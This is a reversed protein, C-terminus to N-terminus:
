KEFTITWEKGSVDSPMSFGGRPSLSIGCVQVGDPSCNRKFQQSFFRGVFVQLWKDIEEEAFDEKFVLKAVYQTKEASFGLYLMNYLFFDHLVYPGVKDETKQAIEGKDPPLLEPSVPTNLIDCLASKLVENGIRDAEYKVLFRMLTKPIGCNVGYMSMHDGNYTAWGLAIESMDGTGIAIGGIQNAIDMLVQTRERAQANEYAADFKDKPQNIDLFHQNVADKISVERFDVGLEEAIIQANSRTRKTTGFCPMTVAIINKRDICLGDFARVAVLLAMTSDLGGSVGIVAKKVGTHDLRKQLGTVQINIAEEFYSADEKVFPMKDFNRSLPTEDIDFDTEAVYYENNDSLGNKRRLFALAQLDIESMIMDNEFKKGLALMKGNEFIMNKGSLVFDTTSEGYGSDACIVASHLIQSQTKAFDYVRNSEFIDAKNAMLNAIVAADSKEFDFCDGGVKATFSFECLRSDRVLIGAGFPVTQGCFAINKVDKTGKASKYIGNFGSTQPIIALFRSKHLIIACNYVAGDWLVPAGLVCLIDMDRTNEAIFSVAKKAANLLTGQLFLDGCTAGTICLEPFVALKVRKEYAKQIAELISKKNFECDAVKIEPTVACVKLFGYKM